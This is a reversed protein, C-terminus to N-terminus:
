EWGFPTRKLGCSRLAETRGRAARRARVKAQAIAAKAVNFGAVAEPVLAWGQSIPDYFVFGQAALDLLVGRDERRLAEEIQKAKSQTVKM